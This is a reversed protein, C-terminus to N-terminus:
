KPVLNFLIKKWHSMLFRGVRVSGQRWRREHDIVFEVIHILQSLDGPGPVEIKSLEVLAWKASAHALGYGPRNVECSCFKSPDQM